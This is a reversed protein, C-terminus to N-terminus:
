WTNRSTPNNLDMPKLINFYNQTTFKALQNVVGYTKTLKGIRNQHKFTGNMDYLQNAYENKTYTTTEHVYVNKIDMHEVPWRHGAEIALLIRETAKQATSWHTEAPIFHTGAKM